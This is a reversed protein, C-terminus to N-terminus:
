ATGADSLGIRSGCGGSRGATTGIRPVVNRASRSCHLFRDRVGLFHGASVAREIPPFLEFSVPTDEPITLHSFDYGAPAQDSPLTGAVRTRKASSQVRSPSEQLGRKGGVEPEDTWDPNSVVIARSKGKVAKKEPVIKEAVEPESVDGMEVDDFLPEPDPAAVQKPAPKKMEAVPRPKPRAKVPAPRPLLDQPIRELPLMEMTKAAEAYSKILPM